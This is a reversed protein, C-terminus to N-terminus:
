VTCEIVAKGSHHYKRLSDASVNFMRKAFRCAESVSQFAEISKGDFYLICKTHNRIPSMTSYSDHLNEKRTCWNLNSVCNNSPDKDKHNVEPLHYPNEIFAEAVLRHVLKPYVKGNLSLKIILYRGKSDKFPHMQKLTGSYDSYVIGEDSIFYHEFGEIKKIM